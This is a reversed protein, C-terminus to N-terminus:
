GAYVDLQWYLAGTYIENGLQAFKGSFFFFFESTSRLSRHKVIIHFGTNKHKHRHELLRSSM